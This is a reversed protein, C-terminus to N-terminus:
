CAFNWELTGKYFSNIVRGIEVFVIGCDVGTSSFFMFIVKFNLCNEIQYMFQSM